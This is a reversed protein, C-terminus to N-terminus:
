VAIKVMARKAQGSKVCYGPIHADEPFCICFMGERMLFRNINGELLLYDASPDYDKTITLSAIDSWAFEEEGSTLFHIDIYKRHAEYTTNKGSDLFVKGWVKEGDLLMKENVPATSSTKLWEFAQKFHANLPFYKEFDELKGIIM